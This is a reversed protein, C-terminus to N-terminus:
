KRNIVIESVEMNKPLDLTQKLALAVDEVRMWEEPSEIKKGTAKEHLRTRFGGPCFSIIRNPKGKFELQLNKSLGRIGWTTIGYLMQDEYAKHGLTSSVNVIDTKDAVIRDYLKAILLVKGKINTSMMRKIEDETIDKISSVSIVGASNILAELPEELALVENAIKEIEEGERLSHCINVDAYECEHRSINVVTKGAGKYLKAVEKGLGDSAGTIVIM